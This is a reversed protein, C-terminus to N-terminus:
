CAPEVKGGAFEWLLGRKKNAPRQCVLFRDEEWILAAVVETVTKEKM